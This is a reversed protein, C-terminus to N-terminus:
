TVLEPFLSLESSIYIFDFYLSIFGKFKFLVSSQCLVMFERISVLALFAESIVLSKLM